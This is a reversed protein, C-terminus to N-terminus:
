HRAEIEPKRLILKPLQSFTRWEMPTLTVTVRLDFKVNCATLLAIAFYRPSFLGKEALLHASAFNSPFFDADRDNCPVKHGISKQVRGHGERYFWDAASDVNENQSVNMSNKLPRGRPPSLKM